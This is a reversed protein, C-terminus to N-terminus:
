WTKIGDLFGRVAKGAAEHQEFVAHGARPVIQLRSGAINRQM